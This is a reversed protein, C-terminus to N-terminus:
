LSAEVIGEGFEPPLWFRDLKLGAKELLEQWQSRTREMGSFGMMMQIDILAEYLTCGSDPLIWENLLLKSYGKTMASATQKLIQLAKEDNWNHLIYHTFYFKAGKIPQPNFFDHTVKQIDDVNVGDIVHQQEELVFRGPAEPFKAKFTALDRGQGGGLDVMLAADADARAKELIESQVPFWDVWDPRGARVGRMLANFNDAIEPRKQMWQFYSETTDFAYQFPTQSIQSPDKYGHIKFYEPAKTSIHFNMNFRHRLRLSRSTFSCGYGGSVYTAIRKRSYFTGNSRM